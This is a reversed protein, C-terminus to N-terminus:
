SIFDGIEKVADAHKTSEVLSHSRTRFTPWDDIKGDYKTEALRHLRRSISSLMTLRTKLDQIMKASMGLSIVQDLLEDGQPGLGNESGDLIVESLYELEFIDLRKLREEFDDDDLAYHNSVPPLISQFDFGSGVCTIDACEPALKKLIEVDKESLTRAM